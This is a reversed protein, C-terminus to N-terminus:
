ARHFAPHRDRPPPPAPELAPTPPRRFTVPVHVWYALPRMDAVPRDILWDFGKALAFATSQGSCRASRFELRGAANTEPSRGHARDASDTSAAATPGGPGASEDIPGLLESSDDAASASCCPSQVEAKAPSPRRPKFCRCATRCAQPSMCGCAHDRCPWWETGVSWKLATIRTPLIVWVPLAGLSAVLMAACLSFVVLRRALM